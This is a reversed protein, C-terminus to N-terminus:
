PKKGKEREDEMVEDKEFQKRRCCDALLTILLLLM